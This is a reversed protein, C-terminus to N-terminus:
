ARSHAFAGKRVRYAFIKLRTATFPIGSAKLVNSARSRTMSNAFTDRSALCRITHARGRVHTDVQAGTASRPAMSHTTGRSPAPCACRQCHTAKQSAFTAQPHQIRTPQARRVIFGQLVDGLALRLHLLRKASNAMRARNLLHSIKKMPSTAVFALCVTLRRQVRARGSCARRTPTRPRQGLLASTVPQACVQLRRGDLNLAFVARLVACLNSLAMNQVYLGSPANLAFPARLQM